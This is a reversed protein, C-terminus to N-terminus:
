KGLLAEIEDMLKNMKSICQDFPESSLMDVGADSLEDIPYKSRGACLFNMYREAAKKDGSLVQESLAQSAVFSTSYQYVYFGMYFHPIFAWEIEVPEDVICAGEEHGYYKRTIDGYLKSLAKGTLPEGREAMEHMRLQFEAFQTQRFLTGKFGDLMSMLLAIRQDKDKIKELMLHDLLAENFTSAVEAVFISYNHLAYPQTKNSFYSQMTHGLEHILTGVNEYRDDYNLLIYPHVDYAAGNSYAGTAKNKTPYVDIWREDFARKVVKKYEDTLPAIAELVMKQAEEYSYKLDVGETAPAYLDYYHLQEVGLLRQKLRLYRHFTPLNRNVNEVLSRYVDTPIKNYSLASELTSGYKRVKAGFLSARVKGAMLEGFTGEFKKYNSWFADFAAKRDDRCSSARVMGFTSHDLEVETGDKLTIKPRPMEADSFINYAGSPADGMLSMKALVAEEADSLTHARQRSIIDFDMKYTALAPEEKIYREITEDPIAAMEPRVFDTALDYDIAVQEIEKTLAMNDANSVDEDSLLSTYIYLRSLEKDFDYSLSLYNLLSQASEGIKGKFAAIEGIRGALATKAERWAEVSPYLPTLDWKYRTEVEARTKTAMIEDATNLLNEAEQASIATTACSAAAAM